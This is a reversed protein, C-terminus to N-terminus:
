RCLTGRIVASRPVIDNQLVDVVTTGDSLDDQFRALHTM